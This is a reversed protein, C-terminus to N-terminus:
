ENKWTDQCSSWTSVLFKSFDKMLSLYPTILPKTEVNLTSIAVYEFDDDEKTWQFPSYLNILLM